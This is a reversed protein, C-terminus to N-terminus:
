FCSLPGFIYNFSFLFQSKITQPCFNCLLTEKLRVDKKNTKRVTSALLRTCIKVELTQLEYESASQQNIILKM